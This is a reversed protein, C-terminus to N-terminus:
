RLRDMSRILKQDRVVGRIALFFCVPIAFYFICSLAMVGTDYNSMQLMYLALLGISLFLGIIAFRLQMKRNGYLFITVFALGCVLATLITLWIDANANLEPNTLTTVGPKLTGSYFPFRFTTAAFAGALLLWISQIRQLM